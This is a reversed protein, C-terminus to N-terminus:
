AHSTEEKSPICETITYYGTNIAATIEAILDAATKGVDARPFNGKCQMNGMAFPTGGRGQLSYAIEGDGRRVLLLYRNNCSGELRYEVLMKM